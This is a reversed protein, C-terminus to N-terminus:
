ARGRRGLDRRITLLDLTARVSSVLSRKSGPADRWELLPEERFRDAPVGDVALRGLLEVDFAWRSRFPQALASHLAPVVRVLKAGCQTDYVPQALVLSAGTAFVRGTYHRFASREITRGLLAVRSALLVDVDPSALAIQTMRHVESPPTSLDADVYGIWRPAATQLRHLMGRRIAEGKGVNEALRLVEVADTRAAIEHLLDVTGDTSGDDVLLVSTTADALSAVGDVDLRAREQYCPVVLCVDRTTGIRGM